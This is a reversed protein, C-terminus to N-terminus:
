RVGREEVQYPIRIDIYTGEGPISRITFTGGLEESRERMTKLGYSTKKDIDKTTDFGKGNDRIHVFVEHERKYLELKVDTAKAHRLINSLSEQIIRFVHEEVTENLVLADDLLLHFDIQCKQRLENILKKVGHTLPEGSLHVPRLHLLLARMETQAQLASAAVEQLQEKAIHPNQDMQKLAAESMMTLAFLQQSVADHLDRALRQREEIVATKHASKAFESKEDAMRQMSKVQNQMKVGLENLENVIRTVEDEKDTYISSDYNGNAYQTILVSLSDLRSKLNGSSRFGAYISIIVTLVIYLSIFVFISAASLWTPEFLVYISLLVSLLTVTTIFMAYFHSRIYSYRIGNIHRFM